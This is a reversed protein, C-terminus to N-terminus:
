NTKNVTKNFHKWGKEPNNKNLLGSDNFIPLFDSRGRIIIDGDNYNKINNFMVMVKHYQLDASNYKYNSGYKKIYDKFKKIDYDILHYNRNGLIETDYFDNESEDNMFYYIIEYRKFINDLYELITKYKTRSLGVVLYHIKMM